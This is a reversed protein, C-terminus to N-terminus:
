LFINDFFKTPNDGLTLKMLTRHASKSHVSGSLAFFVSLKVINKISEPDACTFAAWLINFFNVGSRDVAKLLSFGKQLKKEVRHPYKILYKIKTVLKTASLVPPM